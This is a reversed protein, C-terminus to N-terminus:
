FVSNLIRHFPVCLSPNDLLKQVLVCSIQEQFFASEMVEELSAEHDRVEEVEELRVLSSRRIHIHDMSWTGFYAESHVLDQQLHLNHPLALLMDDDVERRTDSSTNFSDIRVRLTSANLTLWFLSVVFNTWNCM